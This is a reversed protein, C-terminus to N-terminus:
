GDNCKCFGTAIERGHCYGTGDHVFSSDVMNPHYVNSMADFDIIEKHNGYVCIDYLKEPHVERFLTLRNEYQFVYNLRPYIYERFTQGKAEDFITNPHVM